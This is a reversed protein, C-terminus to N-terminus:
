LNFNRNRHHLFLQGFNRCKCKNGWESPDVLPQIDYKIALLSLVSQDHRHDYYGQYNEGYKNPLDTLIYKNKCTELYEKVFKLTFDNKKYIQYSANLHVGNIFKFTDCGMLVFADKKCSIFNKAAGGNMVGDRNDFLIIGNNEDLRNYLFNPNALFLNGADVYFVLDNDDITNLIRNIFYPKWLWYGAGRKQNLIEANEKYFNDDIDSFSFNHIIDFYNEASKILSNKALNYNDTGFIILNTRM